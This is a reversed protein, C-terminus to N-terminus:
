KGVAPLGNEDFDIEVRGDRILFSVYFLNEITQGFSKPNTVFRMLDIGGTSRLGQEHMIRTKESDDMDDDIADAVAEQLSMQLKILQELIKSCLSTLDNERTALDDVNLVEPRTETLSNPRFPASRKSLKRVKREVSLPGVLFGPLAPRRVYPLCAKAGLYFWDMMDGEDVLDGDEETALASIRRDTSRSREPENSTRPFGNDGRRMYNACKSVFEDIDIGQSLSGQTLRLAKKYSLDTTSVLLRSDITAETTQRIQKSLETAQLIADKLDGSDSQLYDESHETVGRLLDRFSKQVRRRDEIPQCPDYLEDNDTYSEQRQRVTLQSDGRSTQSRM